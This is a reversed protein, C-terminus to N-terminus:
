RMEHLYSKHRHFFNRDNQPELRIFQDLIEIARGHNGTDSAIRMMKRLASTDKVAGIDDAAGTTTNLEIPRMTGDHGMVMEIGHACAEKMVGFCKWQLQCSLLQILIWGGTYSIFNMPAVLGM